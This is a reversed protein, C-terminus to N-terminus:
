PICFGPRNERPPRPITTTQRTMTVAMGQEVVQRVPVGGRLAPRYRWRAMTAILAQALQPSNGRVLRVTGPEPSGGTDVVFRLVATECAQSPVYDPRVDPTDWRAVRDVECSRYVQGGATWAPDLTEPPCERAGPGRTAAACAGTSLVAAAAVVFRMSCTM